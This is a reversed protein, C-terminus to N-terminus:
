LGALDNRSQRVMPLLGALARDNPKFFAYNSAGQRRGTPDSMSMTM